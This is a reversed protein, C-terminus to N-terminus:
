VGPARKSPHNLKFELMCLTIVDMVIYPIFNSLWEWVEIICINFNPLPYIIYDWVKSLM